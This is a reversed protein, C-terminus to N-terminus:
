FFEDPDIGSIRKAAAKKATLNAQRNIMIRQAQPSGAGHMSETLYGVGIAGITMAEILRLARRREDATYKADGRLYKQCLEGVEESRWDEDSPLTVMIGGAIDQALRAIEYPFRTVNHKCINALLFNVEQGGAATPHSETACAIGCSYLTENLHIMEVVKDKIHTANATGNYEAVCQTAGILVDGNGSKCGGYSQRHTSAFREVLTGAFEVEGNLFVYEWPVFINDFVTMAEQGGYKINGVDTSTAEMKRTDSAQRGLIYTINPHDAPIACCVAFDEMGPKMAQTPMVLIWHSNLIGTLHMKTGKIVIGDERRAVVHLFLDKDAQELPSLSRNGKPDTLAAGCVLDDEQLMKVFKKFKAHYQTGCKADTEYTNNYTANIADGGACRQFCTGTMLGCLRLRRVKAQLDAPTRFISTFANIPQDTLHSTTVMLSEYEPMEALKYTMALANISPRIM